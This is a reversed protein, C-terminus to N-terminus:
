GASRVRGVALELERRQALVKNAYGLEPDDSAGAFQQLGAILGGERHISERLIQAGVQVNTEPDFLAASGMGEPIKDQHWQPMVQMLGQAGVISEAYPNFRSEISIVAVILLPDLRSERGAKQAAVFVPLLADASVRYRRAVFDLAARMKSTLTPAPIVTQAPEVQAISPEPEVNASVSDPQFSTLETFATPRAVMLAILILSIMLGPLVRSDHLANLVYEIQQVITQRPLTAQSM